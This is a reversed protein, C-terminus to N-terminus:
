VDKKESKGESKEGSVRTRSSKKVDSIKFRPTLLSKAKNGSNVTLKAQKETLVNVLSEDVEVPCGKTFIIVKKNHRLSYTAGHILEVNKKM